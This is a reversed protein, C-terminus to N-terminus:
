NLCMFQVSELKLVFINISEFKSSLASLMKTRKYTLELSEGKLTLLM